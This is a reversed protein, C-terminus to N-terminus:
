RDRKTARKFLAKMGQWIGLLVGSFFHYLAAGVAIWLLAELM